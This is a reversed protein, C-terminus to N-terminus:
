FDFYDKNDEKKIEMCKNKKQSLGDYPLDVQFQEMM